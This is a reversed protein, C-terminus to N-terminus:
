AVRRLTAGPPEPLPQWHTPKIALTSNTDTILWTGGRTRYAMTVMPGDTFADDRVALVDVLPEPLQQEVPIWQNM